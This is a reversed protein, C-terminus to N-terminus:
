KEDTNRKAEQAANNSTNIGKEAWVSLADSATEGRKHAVASLENWGEVLRVSWVFGQKRSKKGLSTEGTFLEVEDGNSFVEISAQTSATTFGRRGNWNAHIYAM